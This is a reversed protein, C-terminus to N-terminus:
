TNKSAKSLIPVTTRLDSWTIQTLTKRHAWCADGEYHNAAHIGGGLYVNEYMPLCGDGKSGMNDTVHSPENRQMYETFGEATWDSEREGAAAGADLSTKVPITM